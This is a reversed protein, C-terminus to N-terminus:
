KKAGKVIARPTYIDKWQDKHEQYYKRSYANIKEKNKEYYSKEQEKHSEHYEAMYQKIRYANEKKYQKMYAKREARTM